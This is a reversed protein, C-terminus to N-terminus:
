TQQMWRKVTDDSPKYDNMLDLLADPEFASLLAHRHEPFMFGEAEAHDLMALLSDYYGNANLIGVPKNHLGIQAGSLTEFLEDFTGYGGPLALYGDGLEYIHAKRKHLTPLVDLRTLGGHALAPTNLSEIIVGIVQGGNELAGDALSGMLGTRGGGFILTVGRRAIVAGMQRATELYVAPVSDSSGCYVCVSKM